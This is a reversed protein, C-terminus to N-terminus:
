EVVPAARETMIQGSAHRPAAAPSRVRHSARAPESLSRLLTSALWPRGRRILDRLSIMGMPRGDDAVVPIRRIAFKRMRGV